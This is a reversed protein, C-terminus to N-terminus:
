PFVGPPDTNVDGRNVYVLKSSSRTFGMLKGDSNEPGDTRWDWEGTMGGGERQRWRKSEYTPRREGLSFLIVNSLDVLMRLSADLVELHQRCFIFAPKMQMNVILPNTKSM